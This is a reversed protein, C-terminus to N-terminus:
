LCSLNVPKGFFNVILFFHGHCYLISQVFDVKSEKSEFYADILARYDEAEILEWNMHFLKLLNLLVPKVEEDQIGLARTAKFACRARERTAM